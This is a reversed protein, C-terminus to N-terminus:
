CTIIDMVQINNGGVTQWQRDNILVTAGGIIPCLLVCQPAIVLVGTHIAVMHTIIYLKPLSAKIIPLARYILIKHPNLYVFISFSKFYRM